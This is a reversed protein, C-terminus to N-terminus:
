SLASIPCIGKVILALELKIQNSIFSRKLIGTCWIQCCWLNILSHLHVSTAIHLRCRWRGIGTDYLWHCVCLHDTWAWGSNSSLGFYHCTTKGMSKLKLCWKNWPFLHLVQSWIDAVKAMNSLKESITNKM